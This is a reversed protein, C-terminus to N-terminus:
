TNYIQQIEEQGFKNELRKIIFHGEAMDQFHNIFMTNIAAGGLAGLVPVAMAAIKEAVVPSYRATIMEIFKAVIPAAAKEASGTAGEIGAREAFYAAARAMEKALMARTAYYSTEAMDDSKSNGGLAFVSLCELRTKIDGLDLGQSRAHEAISRLMICTSLPLEVALFGISFFGAVGGTVIVSGRHWWNSPKQHKESINMTYVAVGLAKNLSKDVVKDVMRGTWKPLKKMGYEIPKGIYNAIQIFLGPNELIEKAYKIEDIVNNPLKKM